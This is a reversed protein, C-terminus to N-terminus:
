CLSFTHTSKLEIALVELDPPSPIETSALTDRVALLVGGGRSQRDKRYIM